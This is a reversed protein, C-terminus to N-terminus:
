RIPAALWTCFICCANSRMDLADGGAFDGGNDLLKAAMGDTGGLDTLAGLVEVGFKLFPAIPRQTGTGIEDEVGTILFDAM